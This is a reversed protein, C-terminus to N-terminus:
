GNMRNELFVELLEGLRKGGDGGGRREVQEKPLESKFSDHPAM